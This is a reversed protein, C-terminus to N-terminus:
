VDGADSGQWRGSSAECRSGHAASSGAWRGRQCGRSRPRPGRQPGWNPAPLPTEGRARPRRAWGGRADRDACCSKPELGTFGRGYPVNERPSGGPARALNGGTHGGRWGRGDGSGTPVNPTGPAGRWGCSPRRQSDTGLRPQRRERGRGTRDGHWPSASSGTGNSQGRLLFNRAANAAAGKM